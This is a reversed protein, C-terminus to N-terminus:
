RAVYMAAFVVLAVPWTAGILTALVGYGANSNGIRLIDMERRYIELRDDSSTPPPMVQAHTDYFRIGAYAGVFVYAAGAMLVVVVTM